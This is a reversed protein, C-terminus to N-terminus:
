KWPFHDHQLNPIIDYMDRLFDRLYIERLGFPLTGTLPGDPSSVQSTLPFFGPWQFEISTSKWVVVFLSFFSSIIISNYLDWKEMTKEQLRRAANPKKSPDLWGFCPCWGSLIDCLQTSMSRWPCSRPMWLLDSKSTSLFTFASLSEITSQYKWRRRIQKPWLQWNQMMWLKGVTEFAKLCFYLLGPHVQLFHSRGYRQCDTFLCRQFM